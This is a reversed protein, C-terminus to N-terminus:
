VDVKKNDKLYEYVGDKIFSSLDTLRINGMLTDTLSVALEPHNKSFGDGFKQDLIMCASDLAHITTLSHAANKSGMLEFVKNALQEKNIM